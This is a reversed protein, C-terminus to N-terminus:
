PRLLKYLIKLMRTSYNTRVSHIGAGKLIDDVNSKEEQEIIINLAKKFEKQVSQYSSDSFIKYKILNDLSENKDNILYLLKM